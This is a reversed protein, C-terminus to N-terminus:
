LDSAFRTLTDKLTKLESMEPIYEKYKNYNDERDYGNSGGDMRVFYKNSDKHYALVHVWGMGAYAIAVDLFHSHNKSRRKIEDLKFFVFGSTHMYENNSGIRSYLVRLETPLYNFTERDSDLIPNQTENYKKEETTSSFFFPNETLSNDVVLVKGESFMNEITKLNAAM